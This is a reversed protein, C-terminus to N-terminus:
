SNMKDAIKMAVGMDGKVKLKGSMFAMMPNMDGNLMDVADSLSMNLTCDTDADVNSVVNPVKTADVVVVGEDTAFKFSAGLGSDTGVLAQVRETFSQLNM